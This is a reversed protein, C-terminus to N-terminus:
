FGSMQMKCTFPPNSREENAPRPQPSFLTQIEDRLSANLARDPPMPQLAAILTDCSRTSAADAFVWLPLPPFTRTVAMQTGSLSHGTQM